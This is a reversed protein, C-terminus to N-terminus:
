RQAFARAFTEAAVEEALGAGVRRQAFAHVAAYHRDYVAGFAEPTMALTAREAARLEMENPDPAILWIPTVPSATMPAFRARLMARRPTGMATCLRVADLVRSKRPSNEDSPSKVPLSDSSSNTAASSRGRRIMTITLAPLGTSPTIASRTGSSSLSSMMM